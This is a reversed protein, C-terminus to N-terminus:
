EVTGRTLDLNEALAAPLETTTIPINATGYESSDAIERIQLDKFDAVGTTSSLCSAVRTYKIEKEDMAIPFYLALQAIFNTKVNEITAEPELEITAKVGINMKEPYLVKINANIPALREGPDDPSMIYNYVTTPLNENATGGDSDTVYIKVLGSDDQAAVITAEGVGSVSTAWRKYDAISGVFSDGQNVDYETIRTILDEDDEEEAGGTIPEPNTVSAVGTLKSSVLVVTNATTNGITGAQTCQIEVAVSGSEPITADELTEYSVSPEDNIAATSFLSGAPILSNAEGEITITGTAALASRRTISRAKAHGDLFEGYSWEPFVLKIVEPLIFECLEAVVLATPRTMNWGHSGESLDIDPPLISKMKEYVEETSHSQLFDPTVFEM